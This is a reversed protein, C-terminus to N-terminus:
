LRKAYEFVDGAELIDMQVKSVPQVAAATEFVFYKLGLLYQIDHHNL